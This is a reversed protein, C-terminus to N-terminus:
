NVIMLKGVVQRHGDGVFRYFYFGELLDIEIKTEKSSRDFHKEFREHGNLDYITISFVTDESFIEIYDSAPNPGVRISEYKVLLDALGTISSDCPPGIDLRYNPNNPITISNYAPLSIGHQVFNCASGPMDPNHIVHLVDVGNNPIMYIRCDPGPQMLYFTTPFPSFFGDYHDIHVVSAQVNDAWSDLQYLDYQSSVYLYRSNPAFAIGGIGGSDSVHIHQFNELKGNVRDFDFLYVQDEPTFRAYKKGDPSIAAQGGGLGATNNGISQTKIEEIEGGVLSFIHYDNNHKSQTICWWGNEKKVCEVGSTLSDSLIIRNKELVTNGMGETKFTTSYVLNAHVRLPNSLIIQGQHILSILSDGFNIFIAGDPVAYGIGEICNIQFVPGPNLNDGNPIIELGDNYVACGNTALLLNGESDCITANTLYLPWGRFIANANLSNNTFDLELSHPMTDGLTELGLQWVYDRKEQSLGSTAVSVLLAVLGCSSKVRCDM